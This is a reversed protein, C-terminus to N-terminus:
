KSGILENVTKKAFEEYMWSMRNSDQGGALGGLGYSVSVEFRDQEEGNRNRVVVDGTISDAGSVIGAAVAAFTPRIRMDKIQIEIFPLNDKSDANLLAKALLARRVYNKLEEADFKSNEAAKKLAEPTLSIKIDGLQRDSSFYNKNVAGSEQRKISGTCGVILISCVLVVIFKFGNM